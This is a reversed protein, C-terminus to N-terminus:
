DAIYDQCTKLSVSKPCGIVAEVTNGNIDQLTNSYRVFRRLGILEAYEEMPMNGGEEATCEPGNTVNYGTDM